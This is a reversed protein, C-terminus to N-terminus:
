FIDYGVKAWDQHNIYSLMYTIEPKSGMSLGPGYAM